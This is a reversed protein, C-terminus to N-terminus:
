SSKTYNNHWFRLYYEALHLATEEASAFQYGSIEGEQVTVSVGEDVVAGYEFMVVLFEEDPVYVTGTLVLDDEAIVLGTEERVERVAAQEPSEGNDVGGGPLQWTSKYTPQVTLVNGLNSKIVVKAAVMKQPQVARWDKMQQETFAKKM